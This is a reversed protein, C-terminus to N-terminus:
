FGRFRYSNAVDFWADLNEENLAYQKVRNCLSENQILYEKEYQELKDEIQEITKSM